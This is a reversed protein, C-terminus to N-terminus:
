TSLEKLILNHPLASKKIMCVNSGSDFLVRFLCRSCVAGITNATCITVPTEHWPIVKPGHYNIEIKDLDAAYHTLLFANGISVDDDSLTCDATISTSSYILSVSNDDYDITSFCKSKKRPPFYSTSVDDEVSLTTGADNFSQDIADCDYSVFVIPPVDEM